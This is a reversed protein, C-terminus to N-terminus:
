AAARRMRRKAVARMFARSKLGYFVFHRLFFDDPPALAFVGSIRRQAIPRVLIQGLRLLPFKRQTM